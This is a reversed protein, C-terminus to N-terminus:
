IGRLMEIEIFTKDWETKVMGKLTGAMEEREPKPIKVCIGSYRIIHPVDQRQVAALLLPNYKNRFPL